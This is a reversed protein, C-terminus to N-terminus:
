PLPLGAERAFEDLKLTEERVSEAYEAERKRLRRKAYYDRSCVMRQKVVLHRFLTRAPDRQSSSQTQPTSPHDRNSNLMGLDLVPVEASLGEDKLKDASVKVLHALNEESVDLLQFFPGRLLVEEEAPHVSIDQIPLACISSIVSDPGDGLQGAAYLKRYNDRYYRLSCKPLSWVHIRLVALLLPGSEEYQTLVPKQGATASDLALPINPDRAKPSEQMLTRYNELQGETLWIWRLVVGDFDQKQPFWKNYLDINILEILFAVIKQDDESPITDTCFYRKVNSFIIEYGWYSSFLRLATYAGDPTYRDNPLDIWPRPDRLLKQAMPNFWELGAQIRSDNLKLKKRTRAEARWQPIRERVLDAIETYRRSWAEAPHRVQVIWKRVEDMRQRASPGAYFGLQDKNPDGFRQRRFNALTLDQDKEKSM